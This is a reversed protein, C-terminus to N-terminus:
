RNFGVSRFQVSASVTSIHNGMFLSVQCYGRTREVGVGDTAGLLVSEFARVSQGWPNLTGSKVVFLFKSLKVLKRRIKM